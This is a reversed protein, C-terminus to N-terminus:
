SKQISTSRKRVWRCIYSGMWFVKVRGFSPHISRQMFSHQSIGKQGAM